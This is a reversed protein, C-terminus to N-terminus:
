RAIGVPVKILAYNRLILRQSTACRMRRCVAIENGPGVWEMGLQYANEVLAQALDRAEVSRAPGQLQQGLKDGSHPIPIFCLAVSLDDVNSVDVICALRDTIQQSDAEVTGLERLDRLDIEGPWVAM